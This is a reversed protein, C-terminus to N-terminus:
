STTSSNSIATSSLGRQHQCQDVKETPLLILQTADLLASDSNSLIAICNPKKLSGGCLTIEQALNNSKSPPYNFLCLAGRRCEVENSLGLHNMFTSVVLWHWSGALCQIVVTMALLNCGCTSGKFGLSQNSCVKHQSQGLRRNHDWWPTTRSTEPGHDPALPM